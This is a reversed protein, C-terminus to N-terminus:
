PGPPPPRAGRIQALLGRPFVGGILPQNLGRTLDTLDAVYDRLSVGAVLRAQDASDDHHRLTPTHVTWGRQEFHQGFEALQSGLESAGHILVVDQSMLAGRNQRRVDSLTPMVM